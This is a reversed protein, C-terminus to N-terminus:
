NENVLPAGAISTRIRQLYIGGPNLESPRATFDYSFLIFGDARLGRAVGIKEVTSEVPIRYAGIGAWVQRNAAHATTAAVEIQKQFVATDTSYAMPCAVDLIGMQLWRRWDQFRRTYANEDNAFVAASVLVKPNRRKVAHYIRDVLSTIQARQFDAFKPAYLDTSALPNVKLSTKLQKRQAPDLQPVLWQNFKEISTRSYDFDPSALRVYDFHIGDVPYHMLIDMWIKYIHDRVKSNAPGTYVGELEARNAKSWEVIRQRYLPNTPAMKYLEAAVPKPVALWEPHKNYVHNPDTPLADLNALLSTNLWAHVKLGHKHAEQLTTALPDFDPSQDKLEMARPEVRSKYYADGRGRVQVILTNFGNDAAASVMARIRDPSTLTTRVVWLARVENASTAALSPKPVEQQARSLSVEYVSRVGVIIILLLSLVRLSDLLSQRKLSILM